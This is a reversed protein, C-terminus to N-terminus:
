SAPTAHIEVEALQLYPTSSGVPLQIRVYRGVVNPVFFDSRIQPPDTSVTDHWVSEAIADPLTAGTFPSTGIMVGASQLREYCCDTRNYVLIQDIEYNAGLDVEWWSNASETIALRRLSSDTSVWSGNTDGDIANEADFNHSGNVHTSAQTATGGLAVNQKPIVEGVPVGYIEVEGFQLRPAVSAVPLQIRVYRGVINPVEFENLNPDPTASVATDWVAQAQSDPLTAGTFPSNGILIGANALYGPNWDPRNYIHIENIIHPSGLDVEWWVNNGDILSLRKASPDGSIWVASREGDVANRPGFDHASGLHSTTTQRAPKSLAVNAGVVVLEANDILNGSAGSDVARFGFDVLSTTPSFQGTYRVWTGPATTHTAVVVGDVVVEFTDNDSRGRHDVSWEYLSGPELLLEQTAAEPGNGNLELHFGGDSSPVSAHGTAWVELNGGNASGTWDDVARLGYTAPGPPSAMSEFSGNQLLSTRVSTPEPVVPIATDLRIDQQFGHDQWTVTVLLRRWAEEGPDLVFRDITFTVGSVDTSSSYPSAAVDSVVDIGDVQSPGGTGDLGDEIGPTARLVELESTALELAVERRDTSVDAKAASSTMQAWVAATAAIISLAIVAEVVTRGGDRSLRDRM